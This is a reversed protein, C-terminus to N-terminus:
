GAAPQHSHSQESSGAAPAQFQRMSSHRPTAASALAKRPDRAGAATGSPAPLLGERSRAVVDPTSSTM